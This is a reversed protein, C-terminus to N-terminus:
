RQGARHDVPAIGRRDVGPSRGDRVPRVMAPRYRVSTWWDTKPRPSGPCPSGAPTEGRGGSCKSIPSRTTPSGWSRRRWCRCTSCNAVRRRDASVAVDADGRQRVRRRSLRRGSRRRLGTRPRTVAVSGSSEARGHKCPSNPRRRNRWPGELGFPTISTVTLHPHAPPHSDPTFASEAVTSGARGCWLTRRPWCTTSSDRRRRRCRSRRRCQAKLGGSLQVPRRRQRVRHACGVGVVPAASGGAAVRGQNGPRRRRGAIQHLLRRRHRHVARRRYLRAAAALRQSCPRGTRRGPQSDQEAPLGASVPRRQGEVADSLGRRHSRRAGPCREDFACRRGDVRLSGSLISGMYEGQHQKFIEFFTKQVFVTDTPRNRACALAYKATMAELEDRPVVRQPLQLRVDGQRHVAARHLGDGSVQARGDDHVWQWQRPGWGCLSVVPPRVPRGRLRNGPRRRRGSLLALRLLLGPRSSASRRSTRCAASARRESQRVVARDDRRASVIGGAPVSEGDDPEARPKPM